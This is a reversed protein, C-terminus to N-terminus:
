SLVKESGEPFVTRQKVKLSAAFILEHHLAPVGSRLLAWFGALSCLGAGCHGGAGAGSQSSSLALHKSARQIGPNAWPSSHSAPMVYPDVYKKRKNRLHRALKRGLGYSLSTSHTKNTLWKGIGLRCPFPSDV